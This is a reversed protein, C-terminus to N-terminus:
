VRNAYDLSIWGLGSKLKGWKKAGKGDSEDVITFIGKGTYKGIKAYDTGPGKRINLDNITVKVAYPLDTDSHMLKYVDNRVDDMTKGHKKFWHMVDAHNSAIGRSHGESHCIVVGDKKPNLKYKKCLYATLECAEEYVENFYKKDVLGDECIEFGIHTNNGDGGCHWGRMDWPLTQYTAVKGNKDKGIFAHVCVSRGGPKAQNWHATSTTTGLVGDNPQVYRNLNPNNAGTSHWMVGTPKIKKGDKYCNNKTLLQKLLRM